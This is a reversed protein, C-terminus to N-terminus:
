KSGRRTPAKLAALYVSSCTFPCLARSVGTHVFSGNQEM